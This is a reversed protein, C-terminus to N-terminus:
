CRDVKTRASCLTNSVSCCSLQLLLFSTNEIVNRRIFLANPCACVIRSLGLAKM